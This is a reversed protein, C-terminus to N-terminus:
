KLNTQVFDIASVLDGFSIKKSGQRWTEFKAPDSKLSDLEKPKADLIDKAYVYSYFESLCVVSMTRRMAVVLDEDDVNFVKAVRKRREEKSMDFSLEKTVREYGCSYLCGRRHYM